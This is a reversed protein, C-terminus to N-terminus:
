FLCLNEGRGPAEVRLGAARQALLEGLVAEGEDGARRADRLEARLQFTRDALSRVM